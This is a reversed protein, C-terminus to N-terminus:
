ESSKFYYNLVARGLREMEDRDALQYSRGEKVYLYQHAAIYAAGQYSIQMLREDLPVENKCSVTLPLMATTNAETGFSVVFGNEYFYEAYEKLVEIRNRLPILEISHIGRSKLANLLTQKSSEFETFAGGAGDLLMPYTPIGGADSIIEIIEELNLFAREDEPVFAPAGAKLLRARLEEELGAIDGRKKQSLTGGYVQELLKYFQDERDTMQEIKVRLAKAVHRERLLDKAHEEMVERVSLSIGTQQFELWKNVLDIMTAVQRNSEELVRDLNRKREPSLTFPYALGKGSVYIRGPNNPDNIRIGAQQDERSIGILEINLLPFVRHRLCEDIFEGYGEAVYFDNIGLIKVDESQALQVAEAISSFASFSYPSHIHNNVKLPPKSTDPQWSELLIDRSPFQKLFSM